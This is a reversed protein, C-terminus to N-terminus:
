ARPSPRAPRRGRARGDGEAEAACVHDVPLLFEVGKAKAKELISRALDLKDDEVRSKGVAVGQAKLFTYAM